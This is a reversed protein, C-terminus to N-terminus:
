KIRSELVKIASKADSLEARLRELSDKNDRVAQEIRTKDADNAKITSQVEVMKLTLADIKEVVANNSRINMATGGGGGLIALGLATLIANDKMTRKKGAEPSDDGNAM